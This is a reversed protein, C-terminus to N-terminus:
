HSAQQAQTLPAPMPHLRGREESPPWPAQGTRPAPSAPRLWASPPPPPAEPWPLPLSLSQGGWHGRQKVIELQLQARAGGLRVRLAAPSAEEAQAPRRSLVLLGGGEEAALQLRRLSRSDLGVRGPWALVAPQGARAAQDVAWLWDRANGPRVVLLREVPLGAAAWAPAHPLAPPTVLVLWGPRQLLVRLAPALLRLEAQGPVRPLLETLAGLPWGGEHLATDLRPHGTAQIRPSAPRGLQRLLPNLTVLPSSM